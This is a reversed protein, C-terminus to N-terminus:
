STGSALAQCTSDNRAAELLDQNKVAQFAQGVKSLASRAQSVANQVKTLFRHANGTSVSRVDAQVAHMTDAAQTLAGLLSGRVSAGGPVDPTGAREIGNKMADVKASVKDFYRISDRKIADLGKKEDGRITSQFHQEAAQIQKGASAIATCVANVYAKPSTGGSVRDAASGGSSGCAALPAAVLAVVM